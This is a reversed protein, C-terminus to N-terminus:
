RTLEKILVAAVDNGLRQNAVRYAVGRFNWRKKREPNRDLLVLLKLGKPPVREWLGTVGRLKGIFLGRKKNAKGKKVAAKIGDLGKRKGIINGYQNLSINPLVPVLLKDLRGGYVTYRLYKAQIPQVFLKSALRIPTATFTKFANISFPTPRDISSEMAVLENQEIHRVTKNIGAAAATAIRKPLVALRRQWAQIGTIKILM